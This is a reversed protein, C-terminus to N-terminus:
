GHDKKARKKKEIQPISIEDLLVVKTKGGHGHINTVDEVNKYHGISSHFSTWELVAIGSPLIFGVAVIGTGSIGSEDEERLLYFPKLKHM